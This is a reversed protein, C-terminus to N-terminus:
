RDDSSSGLSGESASGLSNGLAYLPIGLLVGICGFAVFVLGVPGRVRETLPIATALVLAYSAFALITVGIPRNRGGRSDYGLRFLLVLPLSLVLPPGFNSTEVLRVVTEFEFDNATFLAFVVALITAFWAGVSSLYRKPSYALSISGLTVYAGGVAFLWPTAGRILPVLAPYLPHGLFYFGIGLTVPTTWILDISRDTTLGDLSRSIAYLFGAVVLSPLVVLSVLNTVFTNM